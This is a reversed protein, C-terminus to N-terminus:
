KENGVQGLQQIKARYSDEVDMEGRVWGFAHIRDITFQKRKYGDDVSSIQLTLQVKKDAGGKPMAAELIKATTTGRAAYAYLSQDFDPSLLEFCSWQTDDRYEYSHYDSRQAFIRLEASKVTGNLLEPWAKTNYRAYCDWDVRLGDPTAVICLLRSTEDNFKIFFRATTIGGLNVVDMFIVDNAPENLAQAPYSSLRKKIDEPDRCMKLRLAPDSSKAFDAALQRAEHKYLLATVMGLKDEKQEDAKQRAYEAAILKNRKAENQAEKQAELDERRQNSIMLAGVATAALLFGILCLKVWKGTLQYPAAPAPADEIPTEKFEKGFIRSASLAQETSKRQRDAIFPQLKKYQTLVRQSCYGLNKIDQASNAPSRMLERLGDLADEDGRLADSYGCWYYRPEQGDDYKAADRDMRMATDRQKLLQEVYTQTIGKRCVNGELKDYIQRRNKRIWRTFAENVGEAFKRPIGIRHTYREILPQVDEGQQRLEELAAELEDVHAKSYLNRLHRLLRREGAGAAENEADEFFKLHHERIPCSVLMSLRGAELRYTLINIGCFWAQNRMISVLAACEEPDM